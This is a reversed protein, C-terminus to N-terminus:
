IEKMIEKYKEFVSEPSIGKIHEVPSILMRNLVRYPAFSVSSWETGPFMAVLPKNLASAIHVASTDPTILLDCTKIYGVLHQFGYYKQIIFVDPNFDRKIETIIDQEEATALLLIKWDINKNAILSILKIWHEKPWIRIGAGASINLAVIKGKDRKLQERVESLEKEGLYILPRCKENQIKLGFHQLLSVQRDLLHTKTKDIPEFPHTLIESYNENFAFALKNKSKINKLIFLSTKSANDNLDVTLFFKNFRLMFVKIFIQMSNKVYII